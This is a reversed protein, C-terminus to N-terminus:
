PCSSGGSPCGAAIARAMAHAAARAVDADSLAAVRKAAEVRDVGLAIMQKLLEDRAVTLTETAGVAQDVVAQETPVMAAYAGVVGAGALVLAVVPARLAQILEKNM